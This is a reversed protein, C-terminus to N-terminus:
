LKWFLVMGILLMVFCVISLRWGIRIFDKFQYNAPGIMLINVPHAIPTFFSASCGIATAVAIAQPNTHLSLAASIAIPGTVLATVQGGMVQTLLATLLYAGAALGLPGLPTVLGVMAEGVRDALGTNVMALSVSYMGAILFIAQWEIARYAEEMTILGFLAVSLAGALMALHVPFGLISIVIAALIMGITFIAPRRQIPQDSLDPELVIFDPNNQLGKLRNRSGVVLLSDGLALNFNGVDTRYSRGNHWLAVATFGFKNRFELQKLTQSLAASHPAPMVEIFSVGRVSIHGNGAERGIKCGQQTLQVVREERGVILLIDDPHIMQDPTPAFIAQRGHWIAAVALGFHEGIGSQILTQNVFPSDPLVRAEWLREDLQYFDELESSTNRAMMQEPSPARDPLLRKGLLVLFAIGALAILGGVATFDLIHLPAQPPKATTLLDSAIINATTFYTAAGGLL